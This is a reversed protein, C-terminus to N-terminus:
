RDVELGLLQRVLFTLLVWAFVAFWDDVGFNKVMVIRCYCRLIIAFTSLAFFFSVVGLLQPGRGEIPVTM